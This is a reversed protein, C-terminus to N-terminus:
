ASHSAGQLLDHFCKFIDSINLHKVSRFDAKRNPSAPSNLHTETYFLCKVPQNQYTSDTEAIIGHIRYDFGFRGETNTTRTIIITYSQILEEPNQVPKDSPISIPHIGYFGKQALWVDLDSLIQKAEPISIKLDAVLHGGLYVVFADKISFQRAFGSQMGGLPDPPLFERSWRKWKALNIELLPALERNLYFRIM